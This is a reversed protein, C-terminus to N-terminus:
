VMENWVGKIPEAVRAVYEGYAFEVYEGRRRPIIEPPLDWMMIAQAAGAMDNSQIRHAVTSRALSPCGINYGLSVLADFQYQTLSQSIEGVAIEVPVIDRAFITKADDPSIVMGAQPYPPGAAATHGVGITWIGRTDQYATTRCGEREILVNLGEDSTNM